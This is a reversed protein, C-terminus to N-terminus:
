LNPCNRSLKSRDLINRPLGGVSVKHGQDCTTLVGFIAEGPGAVVLIQKLIWFILFAGLALLSFIVKMLVM